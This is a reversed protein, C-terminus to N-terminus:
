DSKVCIYTHFVMAFGGQDITYVKFFSPYSTYFLDQRLSPAL